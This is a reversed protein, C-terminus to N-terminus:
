ATIEKVKQTLDQSLKVKQMDLSKIDFDKAKPPEGVRRTFGAVENMLEAVEFRMQEAVGYM